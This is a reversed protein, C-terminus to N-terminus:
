GEFCVEITFVGNDTDFPIATIRTMYGNLWVVM